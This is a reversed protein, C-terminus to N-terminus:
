WTGRQRKDTRYTNTTGELLNPYVHLYDWAIDGINHAFGELMNGLSASRYIIGESVLEQVVGDDIRLINSRTEEAFYFRLIQKEDETLRHLRQTVRRFAARRHWWRRLWHFIDICLSVGFLATSVIFILGLWSRNKQTLELVGLRELTHASSFLLFASIIGLSVLYRPALKLFELFSKAFESLM